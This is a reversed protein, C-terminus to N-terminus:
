SNCKWTSTVVIIYIYMYLITTVLVHFHLEYIDYEEFHYRNNTKCFTITFITYICFQCYVRFADALKICLATNPVLIKVLNYKGKLTKM